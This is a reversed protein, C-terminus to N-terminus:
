GKDVRIPVHGSILDVLCLLILVGSTLFLNEFNFSSSSSSSYSSFFFFSLKQSRVLM